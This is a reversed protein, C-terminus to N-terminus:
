PALVAVAVIAICISFSYAKSKINKGSEYADSVTKKRLEPRAGIAM